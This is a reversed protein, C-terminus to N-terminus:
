LNLIDERMGSVMAMTERILSKFINLEELTAKPDLHEPEPAL